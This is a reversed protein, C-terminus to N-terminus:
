HQPRDSMSLRSIQKQNDFGVVMYMKGKKFKCEIYVAYTFGRENQDKADTVKYSKLPGIKKELESWGQGLQQPNIQKRENSPFDRVANKYDGSNLSTIINIAKDTYNKAEDRDYPKGEFTVYSIQKQPGFDVVTHLMGKAFRCTICVSYAIDRDEYKGEANLIDCKKFPGWIKEIEQWENGFKQPDINKKASAAFDKVAGNCDRADLSKIVNLAKAAYMKAEPDGSDGHNYRNSQFVVLWVAAILLFFASSIIAIGKKKTM